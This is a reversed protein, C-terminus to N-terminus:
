GHSLLFVILFPVTMPENKLHYVEMSLLFRIPCKLQIGLLLQIGLFRSKM